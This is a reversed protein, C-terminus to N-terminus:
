DMIVRTYCASENVMIIDQTLDLNERCLVTEVGKDQNDYVTFDSSFSVRITASTQDDSIKINSIKYSPNTFNITDKNRDVAAIYEAKTRDMKVTPMDQDNNNRVVELYTQADDSLHRKLFDVIAAGGNKKEHMYLEYFRHIDRETESKEQAYAFPAMASCLLAGVILTKFHSTM